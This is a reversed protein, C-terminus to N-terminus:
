AGGDAGVLGGDGGMLEEVFVVAGVDDVGVVLFCNVMVGFVAECADNMMIALGDMVDLCKGPPLVSPEEAFGEVVALGFGEGEGGVFVVFSAVDECFGKVAVECAFM